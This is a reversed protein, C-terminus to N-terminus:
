DNVNNIRILWRRLSLFNLNSWMGEKLEDKIENSDIVAQTLEKVANALEQEGRNQMVQISTDL